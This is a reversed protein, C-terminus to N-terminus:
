AKLSRLENQYRVCSSMGNLVAIVRLDNENGLRKTM